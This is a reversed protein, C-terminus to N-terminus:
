LVFQKLEEAVLGNFVVVTSPLFAALEESDSDSGTDRRGERRRRGGVALELLCLVVMVGQALEGNKQSWNNGRSTAGKVSALM